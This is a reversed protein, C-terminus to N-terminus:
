QLLYAVALGLYNAVAYGVLGTTLGSVVLGENDLSKAVVPVFAPGYLGATSTILVTDTDLKFLAAFIFHLTITALMVFTVYLLLISSSSLLEEFDALSGVAICFIMLLYKGAPYSGDMFRVSRIFSAGIGLTTVALIVAIETIMGSFLYSLGISVGLILASIGLPNFYDRIKLSGTEVEQRHQIDQYSVQKFEPLFLNLARQAVSMLFILYIGGLVVDASNILIFTENKINLALGIASMNPTGGTYLGIMMGAIKASEETYGSFLWSATLSSIVVSFICLFFSGIAPGAHRLWKIFDTPLLLLVIALPVTLQVFLTSITSDVPIGPLNAALLGAGYCLVIPGLKDLIISHRCLQLILAPLLLLFLSQIIILGM